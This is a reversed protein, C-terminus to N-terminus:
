WKSMSDIVKDLTEDDLEDDTLRDAEAPSYYDKERAGGKDKASGTSIPKEAKDSEFYTGKVSEEGKLKVYKEVAKRVPMNMGEYFDQFEESDIFKDYDGGFEKEFWEKDAKYAKAAIQPKIAELMERDKITRRSPSIANIRDFEEEIEEPDSTEIFRKANIYAIAEKESKDGNDVSELIGNMDDESIGYYKSAQELQESPSGKFGAKSELLKAMAKYAKSNEKLEQNEAKLKTIKGTQRGLRNKIANDMQEQTYTKPVEDPKTVQVDSESKSEPEVETLEAIENDLMENNDTM